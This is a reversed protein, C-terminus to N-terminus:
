LCRAFIRDFLRFFQMDEMNWTNRIIVSEYSILYKRENKGTIEHHMFSLVGQKELKKYADMSVNEIMKINNVILVGKDYLKQLSEDVIYDSTSEIQEQSMLNNGCQFLVKKEDLSYLVIREVGFYDVIDNFINKVPYNDGELVQDAIRCVIEAKNMGRRSSIGINQIGQSLIEEVTGHKEMNYIIYRNKGKNKARYLLYDALTFLNNFNDVDEPYCACGISTSISFGDREVSYANLIGNKISRLLSRLEEKDEMYDLVIFFEDGGIRGASGLGEVEEMIIAACKRLVEDGKMHGFNDNVDKFDDIDIIAIITKKKLVDIQNRALNTIDEKLILGTLQDRRVAEMRNVIGARVINGVTKTHIGDQYVATGCIEMETLPGDHFVGKVNMCYRFNRMGERIDSLICAAKHVGKEDLKKLVKEYAEELTFSALVKKDPKFQFCTLIQSSTEYVFYTGDFQSLLAMYDQVEEKLRNDECYLSDLEAMRILVNGTEDCEMLCSVMEHVSKDKDFIHLIFCQNLIKEQIKCKLLSKDEEPMLMDFTHYLREGLFQYFSTNATVIHYEDKKFKVEFFNEFKNEM